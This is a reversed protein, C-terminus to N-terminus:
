KSDHKKAIKEAGKLLMKGLGIHQSEKGKVGLELAKGYVHLERVIAGSGFVRLRLLGFLINDKNVFELFYEKGNNARYELIKLTTGLDLNKRNFGIERMRIEQVKIGKKRLEDEVDKRIDLKIMGKVLKEKPIERMVRMVRCYAPVMEMIKNVIDRTQEENYPKYGIKKWMKALPSKEIVQCPYIKLQDPKFIDDEFLMKFMEIDHKMNSFPLGPMIHYGLKFGANKLRESADVVDQVSHGRNVKKYIEDDPIQVGIEVRTCGFDLMREIEEASCNDPRNEICMAVCRHKAKENWKKAQDLDKAERGNM